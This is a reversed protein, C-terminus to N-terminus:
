SLNTAWVCKRKCLSVWISNEFHELLVRISQSQELMWKSPLELSYNEIPHEWFIYEDSPLSTGSFVLALVQRPCSQFFSNLSYGPLNSGNLHPPPFMWTQFVKPLVVIGLHHHSGVRFRELCVSRSVLCHLCNMDPITERKILWDDM